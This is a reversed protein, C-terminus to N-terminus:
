PRRVSAAAESLVKAALWRCLLDELAKEAGQNAAVVALARQGEAHRRQPAALLSDVVREIETANAVPHFCDAAAFRDCIEETKFRAPGMLIPLGQAAAEIPNHGGTDDLSGGVFAVDAHAYLHALTGMVDGILVPQELDRQSMLGTALAYRKALRVVQPVRQPHRPVLILRLNPWHERLRQHADLLIEEEGAHTSGAIWTPADGFDLNAVGFDDPPLKADFKVSGVVHVREAGLARFRAATDEYQCVVGDLRQLMPRVLSGARRYRRFSRASLRANVLYAGAGSGVTQAILNPWLETEMLILARPRIRRLFRRVAWPFDYPAYCHAVDDGLLAQVRASGSPTMTTVLITENPLRKRVARITAAAANTEGASVTHFWIAGPPLQPVHGFRERIRQRYAPESRGKWYLRLRVWPLALLM